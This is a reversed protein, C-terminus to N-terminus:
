LLVSMPGRAGEGQPRTGGVPASTSGGPASKNQRFALLYATACVVVCIFAQSATTLSCFVSPVMTSMLPDVLSTEISRVLSMPWSFVKPLRQGTRLEQLDSAVTLRRM